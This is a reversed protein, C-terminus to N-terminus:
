EPAPIRLQEPRAIAAELRAPDSLMARNERFFAGIQRWSQFRFVDEDRGPKRDPQVLLVLMGHIAYSDADIDTNGIGILLHAYHKRLSNLTRTKYRTQGLADRPALSTVVPERPYGHQELWRRTKDLTFRPRATVYLLQFDPDIETLVQPSDPIPQSSADVEDFFLSGLSTQSITSDIDCAVIVVDSRWEVVEGERRFSEGGFQAIAEFRAAPRTVEGLAMAFGREDTVAAAVPKGAVAFQVEVDSVGGLLWGNQRQAFGVFRTTGDEFRIAEDVEFYPTTCGALLAGALVLCWARRERSRASLQSLM